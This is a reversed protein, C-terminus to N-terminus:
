HSTIKLYYRYKKIILSCDSIKSKYEKILNDDKCIRLKNRYKAM